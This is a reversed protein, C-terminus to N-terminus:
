GNEGRLLESIQESLGKNKIALLKCNDTNVIYNFTEVNLMIKPIDNNINDISKKITKSFDDRYIVLYLKHTYNKLNDAGWVIYGARNAIGVYGKVKDIKSKIM